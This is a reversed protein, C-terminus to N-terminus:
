FVFDVTATIQNLRVSQTSTTPSVDWLGYGPPDNRTSDAQLKFAAHASFDWRMGLSLTNQDIRTSNAIHVVSDRLRTNLAASGLSDVTASLPATPRYHAWMVFPMWAGFRRGMSVYGMTGSPVAKATTTSRGLETQVRWTNDDYVLGLTTYNIPVGRFSIQTLLDSANASVTPVTTAVQAALESQLPAFIPVETDITFHSHAAKLQWYSSQWTTSFTVLDNTQFTYGGAAGGDIPLRVESKGTQAKVSWVGSETTLVQYRIDAGDVSFIPIWGYFELPPRVYTYAYGVNRYDAMLFADYGVRGLRIDWGSRPHLALYALQISSNLNPKFHDYALAQAVLEVHPDPRFQIQAGIRSDLRWSPGTSYGSRAQQSIDRLQAVDPRDDAEYGLTGFGSLTLLDGAQAPTQLLALLIVHAVGITSVRVIPM